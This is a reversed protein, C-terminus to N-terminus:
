CLNGLVYPLIGGKSLFAGETPTDVRVVCDFGVVEGSPRTARVHAIRSAPLGASLDVPSVDYTEDGVLGLEKAGEGNAFQLPLVGMQVLNSRHIREFSEAIVVRVGLLLPGKGAWDRSSGSGYLKGAVVVLPVGASRYDESADFISTTEGDLFDHTWGGVRGDAIANRLKVNAFTGRAMIEHNGRRSGYTNFDSREVGREGLYRAAPSDAAIAGAPSIHDTTVFDGLLALVRAGRVEIVERERAIDFYPARRVYTSEPDWPFTDSESAPISRWAASGELLGRAGEAFVEPTVAERLVREIEDNTPMIEALSVPRGDPGYGVPETSLDVDMTGAIAYAVVLAPQCLYNQSVDPSIRGEFNRNGSLVSTLEVDRSVAKLEPKIEGSNGICSMCGFGCTFFGLERLPELLGARRLILETAHSGPALITKVWPKPMLGRERAKAAVLGAAVMMAPDTATTCSTIAAIAVAGHHLEGMRGVDFVQNLDTRGNAVASDEFRRRLGAVTVRDHPRSPGALSLEVSSLDFTVTRAYVRNGEDDFAGQAELYARAFAVESHARGTLELYGMTVDDVPFLTTTAGYEPTMNAVCSRQTATLASVGEGTVEVLCGVVGERRMLQAVALALDMGSVGVRLSGVLRLEVVPPVLMSVPQGLAAAEAEIGGVGWGLVGLGNATTTHSDTGVLTDFCSVDSGALADTTVVSCFREINLQHCIGGGPPVIEVNQFSGSAWKLFSFRERNRRAETEQNAEVAGEVGAVDAIVSHDVVLTCPIHPNVKSPDGGREVMADRMAAFDVFVPVGTFDQFLVRAPMFEIEAGQMGALGASVVSFAERVADETTTARRVVNELLVLLARPLRTAGPIGSVDYMLRTVGGGSLERPTRAALVADRFASDITM